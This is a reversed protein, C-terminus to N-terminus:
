EMIHAQYKFMEPAQAFSGLSLLLLAIILLLLKKM